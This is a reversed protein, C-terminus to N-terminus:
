RFRHELRHIEERHLTVILDSLIALMLLQMGALISFASVVAIVEHSVGRTVWEIGVYIGLLFGIFSFIAGISGFYFLPNNTKALRYLTLFITWGDRISRLNSESGQPRSRYTIPVVQTPINQKVCEVSMETELGFGKATLYMKEVSERTFARYGSLIDRFDRGHIRSFARNIIRNGFKHLSSMAGEQLNAFRNGIVHQSDGNFIPNLLKNADEPLYTGDGDAMLIIDADIKRIAERVAQGKGTGSQTTVTAGLEKAIERTNDSSHGDIVFINDFGQDKFGNIVDDIVEEENLTPLLVCVDEKEPM